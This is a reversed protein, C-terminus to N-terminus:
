TEGLGGHVGGLVVPEHVKFVWIEFRGYVEVGVLIVCNNFISIECSGGATWVSKSMRPLM